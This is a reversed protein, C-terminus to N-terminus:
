GSFNVCIGLNVTVHADKAVWIGVFESQVVQGTTDPDTFYAITVGSSGIEPHKDKYNELRYQRVGSFMPQGQVFKLYDISIGNTNDFLFNKSVPTPMGATNNLEIRVDSAIDVEEGGTVIGTIKSYWIEGSVLHTDNSNWPTYQFNLILEGSETVVPVAQTLAIDSTSQDSTYGSITCKSPQQQTLRYTGKREESTTNESATKITKTDVKSFVNGPNSTFSGSVQGWTTYNGTSTISGNTTTISRRSSEYNITGTDGADSSFLLSKTSVNFKYQYTTEIVDAKSQSLPVNLLLM